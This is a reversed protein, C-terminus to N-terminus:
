VTRSITGQLSITRSSSVPCDYSSILSVTKVLLVVFSDDKPCYVQNQWDFFINSHLNNDFFALNFNFKIIILSTIVYVYALLVRTSFSDIFLLNNILSLSINLLIHPGVLPLSPVHRFVIFSSNFSRILFLFM